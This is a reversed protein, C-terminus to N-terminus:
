HLAPYYFHVVCVLQQIKDINITDIIYTLPTSVLYLCNEKLLKKLHRVYPIFVWPLFHPCNYTEKMYFFFFSDGNIPPNHGYVIHIYHTHSLCPFPSTSIKFTFSDCDVKQEGNKIINIRYFCGSCSFQRRLTDKYFIINWFLLKNEM